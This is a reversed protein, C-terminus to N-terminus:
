NVACTLFCQLVTIVTCCICWQVTTWSNYTDIVRIFSNWGTIPNYHNMVHLSSISQAVPWNAVELVRLPWFSAFLNAKVTFHYWHQSSLLVLICSRSLQLLRGVILKIGSIGGFGSPVGLSLLWSLGVWPMSVSPGVMNWLSKVQMSVVLINGRSILSHPQSSPAVISTVENLFGLSISVILGLAPHTLLSCHFLNHCFLMRWDHPSHFEGVLDQYSTAPSGLIYQEQASQDIWLEHTEKGWWWRMNCSLSLAQHFTSRCTSYRSIISTIEGYCVFVRYVAEAIIPCLRKSQALVNVMATIQFLTELFSM